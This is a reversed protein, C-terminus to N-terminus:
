KYLICQKAMHVEVTIAKVTGKLFVFVFSLEFNKETTVSMENTIKRGTVFVPASSGNHSACFHSCFSQISLSHSHSNTM